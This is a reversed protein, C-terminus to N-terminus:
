LGLLTNLEDLSEVRVYGYSPSPPDYGRDLLITNTIGLDTCPMIDYRTHSSVHLIRDPETGLTDLMYEFAQYRPKYAGAQEATYVAHFEAGLRPVSIDLFSTDANSLIVLPFNEALTKLPSPIDAHPGWSRVADAFAKGSGEAARLGARGCARTFADELLQEYSYFSDGCVQDYRYARFLPVFADFEEQTVQDGLLQRTVAQIEFNILTGYCDFTVYDPRFAIEPVPEGM